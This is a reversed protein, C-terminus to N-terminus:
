YLDPKLRLKDPGWILDSAKAQRTLPKTTTNIPYTTDWEKCGWPSYGTLSRRDLPNELCSYQVPNSNGEGLSRGLGPISGTDGANAPPNKSDSGSPFGLM